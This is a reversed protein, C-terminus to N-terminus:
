IFPSERGGRVEITLEDNNVFFKFAHPMRLGQMAGLEEDYDAIEKGDFRRVAGAFTSGILDADIFQAKLILPSASDKLHNDVRLIFLIIIVNLARTVLAWVQTKGVVNTQYVIEPADWLWIAREAGPGLPPLDM